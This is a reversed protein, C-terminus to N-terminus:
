LVENVNEISAERSNVGNRRTSTKVPTTVVCDFENGVRSALKAKGCGSGNSNLYENIQNLDSKM